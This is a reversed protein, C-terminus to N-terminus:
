WSGLTDVRILNQDKDFTLTLSIKDNIVTMHEKYKANKNSTVTKKFEKYDKDPLADKNLELTKDAALEIDNEFDRFIMIIERGNISECRIMPASPMTSPTPYAITYETTGDSASCWIEIGKEGENYTNDYRAIYEKLTENKIEHLLLSKNMGECDQKGIEIKDDSLYVTFFVCNIILLAFILTAIVALGSWKTYIGM